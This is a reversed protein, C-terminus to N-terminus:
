KNMYRVFLRAWCPVFFSSLVSNRHSFPKAASAPLSHLNASCTDNFMPSFGTHMPPNYRCTHMYVHTYLHTRLCKDNHTKRYQCVLTGSHVETHTQTLTHTHTGASHRWSNSLIYHFSLVGQSNGPLGPNLVQLKWHWPQIQGGTLSSFDQLCLAHPPLPPPSNPRWIVNQPLLLCKLKKKGM